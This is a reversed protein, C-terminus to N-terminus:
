KDLRWEPYSEIANSWSVRLRNAEKFGADNNCWSELHLGVTEADVPNVTIRNHCPRCVALLNMPDLISGGQSRNVIEHIDRPKNPTYILSVSNGLAVDFGAWVKCAQCVKHEKLMNSVISRRDVYDNERKDSRPKLPSRKLNSSGRKFPTRKLPKGQRM